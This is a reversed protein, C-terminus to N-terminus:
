GYSDPVFKRRGSPANCLEYSLFYQGNPIKSVVAMGPRANSDSSAVTAQYASWSLLDSSTTQVLKQNYKPDREDSYYCVLQNNYVM